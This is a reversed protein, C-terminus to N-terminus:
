HSRRTCRTGNGNARLRHVTILSLTGIALLLLTSPEPVPDALFGHYAGSADQYYGVIEGLDNIGVADTFESGPVNITTLRGGSLLFSGGFGESGVIEGANNIGSAFGAVNLTTYTGNSVLLGHDARGDYYSGVIVGADNIGIAETGFSGPVYIGTTTGNSFLFGYAKTAPVTGVIQGADNIGSAKGPVGLSTYSGGSLLFSGGSYGGVIQGANNIGNAVTYAAGPVDLTKYNGGSLLFGHSSFSGPTSGYSGVIQGTDNIGFPQTNFGGPVDLTTYVYSGQAKAQGVRAVLLCLVMFGGLFRKM